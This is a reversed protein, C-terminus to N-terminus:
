TVLVGLGAELPESIADGDILVGSFAIAIHGPYDGQKIEGAANLIAACLALAEQHSMWLYVHSFKPEPRHFTVFMTVDTM